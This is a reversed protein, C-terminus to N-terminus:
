PGSAPSPPEIPSGAQAPAGAIWWTLGAAEGAPPGFSAELRGYLIHRESVDPLDLVVYRFGADELEALSPLPCGSGRRGCSWARAVVLHDPPEIQGRPTDSLDRGHVARGALRVPHNPTLAPSTMPLHLVAGPVPDSAWAAWAAEPTQVVPWPLGVLAVSRVADVAGVLGLIVLPAGLRRAALMGALGLVALLSCRYYQGGYALPLHLWRAVVGPGLLARGGLELPGDGWALVPGLALGAGLLVLVGWRSRRAGLVLAGLLLALGLYPQHVVLARPQPETLGLLLTDVSAVTLPDTFVPPWGELAYAPRYLDRDPDFSSAGLWGRGLLAGVLALIVPLVARRPGAVWAAWPLALGALLALYPSTGAGLLWLPLVMAAIRRSGAGRIVGWLLLPLVWAQTNEVQGSLAAGLTVPALGYLLAGLALGAPRAGPAAAAAFPVFAAAGLAPGLLTALNVVALPGLLPRLLTGLGLVAWAVFRASRELPFGAADTPSPAQGSWLAEGVVDVAWAHGGAFPNAVTSGAPDALWGAHLSLQALLCCSAAM